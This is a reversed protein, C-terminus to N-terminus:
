MSRIKLYREMDPLMGQAVGALPNGSHGGVAELGKELLRRIGPRAVLLGAGLGMLAIGGAVCLTDTTDPEHSSM